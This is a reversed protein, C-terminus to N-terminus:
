SLQCHSSPNIVSKNCNQNQTLTRVPASNQYLIVKLRRWDPNSHSHQADCLYSPELATAAHEVRRSSGYPQAVLSRTRDYGVFTEKPSIHKSM